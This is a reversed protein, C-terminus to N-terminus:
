ERVVTASRVTVSPMVTVLRMVMALRPTDLSIYAVNPDAALVEVNNAEVDVIRINLNALIGVLLGGVTNLLGGILGLSAAPKAQVIVKVRQDGNGSLILQRLDPSIKSTSLTQTNQNAARAPTSSSICLASCISLLVAVTVARKFVQPRSM